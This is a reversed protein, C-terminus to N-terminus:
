TATVVRLFVNYIGSLLKRELHANSFLRRAADHQMELRLFLVTHTSSLSFQPQHGDQEPMTQHRQGPMSKVTNECYSVIM